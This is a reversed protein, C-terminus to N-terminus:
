WHCRILLSLRSSMSCTTLLKTLTIIVSRSRTPSKTRLSSINSSWHKSAKVTKNVLTAKSLPTSSKRSTRKSTRKSSRASSFVKASTTTSISMPHFSSSVTNILTSLSMALLHRSKKRRTSILTSSTFCRHM